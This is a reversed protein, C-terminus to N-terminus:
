KIQPFAASSHSSNSLFPLILLISPLGSRERAEWGGGRSGKGRGLVQLYIMVVVSRLVNKNPLLFAYNYAESSNLNEGIKLVIFIRHFSLAAWSYASIGEGSCVSLLKSSLGSPLEALTKNRPCALWAARHPEWSCVRETLMIWLTVDEFSFNCIKEREREAEERVVMPQGASLSISNNRLGCQVFSLVSKWLANCKNRWINTNRVEFTILSSTPVAGKLWVIGGPHPIWTAAEHIHLLMHNGSASM